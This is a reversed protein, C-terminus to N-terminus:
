EKKAFPVRLIRDGAFSGILLEGGVDLAVSGAGMPPGEHEYLGRLTLSDPDLSVISFHFPCQGKELALCALVHRLPANQSAVLLRGDSGWTSHNPQAVEQRAVLAATAIDLKRVENGLYANVYLYKGDASLALGSPFPADTGELKEWGKARTWGLLYGTRSGLWAALRLRWAPLGREHARSAAFGGDPLAIVDNLAADAPAPVCGRWLVDIAGDRISLAYLEVAERGGHNVLYLALTGDGRTALDLGHPALSDRPPSPCTPDGWTSNELREERRAISRVGSDLDFLALTGARTGDLSGMESVLVIRTGPM